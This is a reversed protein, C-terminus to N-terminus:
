NMDLAHRRLLELPVIELTAQHTSGLLVHPAKGADHAEKWRAACLCWRDGPKLGPFGHEPLPTSLDNGRQASFALFEATVQVCVTHVGVDEDSTDCCGNRFFGTKPRTSCPLLADGLVNLSPYM